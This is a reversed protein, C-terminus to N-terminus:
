PANLAETDAPISSESAGGSTVIIEGVMGQVRHGPVTCIYYYTGEELPAIFEATGSEGGTLPATPTGIETGPIIGGTGEANATVGFAHFSIGGNEVNFIIKDGPAVTFTPNNDPEGPLANFAMTIFDSSEIFVLDQEFTAGTFVSDAAVDNEELSAVVVPPLESIWYDWLGFFIAGGVVCIGLMIAMMKATRAPSTRYIAMTDNTM